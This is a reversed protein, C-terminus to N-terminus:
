NKSGLLGSESLSRVAQELAVFVHNPGLEELFDTRRLRDMVPGKVEALSFDVNQDRLTATLTTLTELASSDIYNIASCVLVVHRLDPKDSMWCLVQDQFHRTNAFYLSGDIRVLLIGPHAETEHRNVNRYVETGPIKGVVAMHPRSTRWLFLVITTGIGVLIGTEIGLM